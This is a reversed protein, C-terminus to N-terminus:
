TQSKAVGRVIAEWAGRDMSNELCAYQLANGNGEGPCLTFRHSGCQCASEEGSFWLSLRYLPHLDDSLSTSLSLVTTSM